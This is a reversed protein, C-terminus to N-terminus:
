FLPLYFVSAQRPDCPFGGRTLGLARAARRAGSLLRVHRGGDRSVVHSRPASVGVASQGRARLNRLRGGPPGRPSTAGLVKKRSLAGRM